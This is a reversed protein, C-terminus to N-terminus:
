SLKWNAIHLRALARCRDAIEDVLDIEVVLAAFPIRLPLVEPVAGAIGAPQGPFIASRPRHRLRRSSFGARGTEKGHVQPFCNVRLRPPASLFCLLCKVPKKLFWPEELRNM